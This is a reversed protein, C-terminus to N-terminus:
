PQLLEGLRGSLSKPAEDCTFLVEATALRALLDLREQDPLGISTVGPQCAHYVAEEPLLTTGPGFPAAATLGIAVIPYRGPSTPEPDGARGPSLAEAAMLPEPDGSLVRVVLSMESPDIQVSGPVFSLGTGRLRARLRDPDTAFRPVLAAGREGVVAMFGPLRVSSDDPLYSSLRQDLVSVLFPLGLSSCVRRLGEYLRHMGYRLSGEGPEGAYLSFNAPVEPDDVLHTGFLRKLLADVEAANTRLGVHFPGIGLAITELWDLDEIPEVCVDRRFHLYRTTPTEEVRPLMVDYWGPLLPHSLPTLTASEERSGTSADVALRRVVLEHALALVDAEIAAPDGKVIGALDQALEEVTGDGDLAEFVLAAVPDLLHPQQHPRDVVVLQGGVAVRVLDARARLRRGGMALRLGEVDRAVTSM